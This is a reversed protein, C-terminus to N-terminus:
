LRGHLEEMGGSPLRRQETNKRRSFDQSTSINKDVAENKGHDPEREASPAYVPELVQLSTDFMHKLLSLEQRHIMRMTQRSNQQQPLLLEQQPFLLLLL